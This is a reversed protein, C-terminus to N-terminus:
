YKVDEIENKLDKVLLIIFNDLEEKTALLKVKVNWSTDINKVKCGAEEASLYILTILYSDSIETYRGWDVFHTAKKFEVTRTRRM